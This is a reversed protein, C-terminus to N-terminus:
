IKRESRRDDEERLDELDDKGKSGRGEKQTNPINNKSTRFRRKLYAIRVYYITNNNLCM